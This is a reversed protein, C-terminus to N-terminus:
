FLDNLGPFLNRIVLLVLATYIGAMLDDLLIGLGGPYKELRRCPWPKLVDFIRFFFFAGIFWWLAPKTISAVAILCGAVEDLVIFGPDEGGTMREAFTGLIMTGACAALFLVTTTLMWVIGQPGEPILYIAGLAGLSGWTGPAVPLFGLGFASGVVRTVREM